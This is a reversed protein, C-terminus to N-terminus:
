TLEMVVKLYSINMKHMAKPQFNFNSLTINNKKLWFIIRKQRSGSKFNDEFIKDSLTDECM